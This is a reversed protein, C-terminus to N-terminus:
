AGQASGAQVNPTTGIPSTSVNFRDPNARALAVFEKMTSVGLDPKVTFVNPSTAVEVIPAFDRFPDYPLSDYLSPNVSYASSALLLTHGDPESRAVFGMGINGGAGGKNEVIVSGGIVQQLEAAMLRAVIDSPGGPTNPNVIRVTREPYASLADGARLLLPAAGGACAARLFHRRTFCLNLKM